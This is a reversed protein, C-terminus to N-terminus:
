LGGWIPTYKDLFTGPGESFWCELHWRKCHINVYESSSEKACFRWFAIFGNMICIFALLICSLWPPYCINRVNDTVVEFNFLKIGRCYHSWVTKTIDKKKLFFKWFIMKWLFTFTKFINSIYQTVQYKMDKNIIFLKLTNCTRIWFNEFRPYLFLVSTFIRSLKCTLELKIRTFM